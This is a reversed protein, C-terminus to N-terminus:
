TEAVLSHGVEGLDDADDLLSRGLLKSELVDSLLLDVRHDFLLFHKPDLVDVTSFSDGEVLRKTLIKEEHDDANEVLDRDKDNSLWSTGLRKGDLQDGGVKMTLTGLSVEEPVKGDDLDMRVLARGERRRLSDFLDKGLGDFGLGRSVVEERNDKEIFDTQSLLRGVKRELHEVLEEVLRLDRDNTNGVPTEIQGLHVTSNVESTDLWSRFIELLGGNADHSVFLDEFDGEVKQSLTVELDVPVLGLCVKVAESVKVM